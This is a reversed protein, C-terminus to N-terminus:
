ACPPILPDAGAREVQSRAADAVLAAVHGSPEVALVARSALPEPVCDAHSGDVLQWVAAIVRAPSRQVPLAAALGKFALLVGLHVQNPNLAGLEGATVDVRRPGLHFQSRPGVLPECVLRVDRRLSAVAVLVHEVDVDLRTPSLNLQAVDAMGVNLLPDGAELERRGGDPLDM